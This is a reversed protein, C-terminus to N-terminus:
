ELLPSESALRQKIVNVLTAMDVPKMLIEDGQLLIANAAADM